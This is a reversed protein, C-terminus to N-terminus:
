NKKKFFRRGVLDVRVSVSKGWALSKRDQCGLAALPAEEEPSIVDLMIGTEAAVRAIFEAGNAARRCAETAVSRALTVRRHRLKDSCVALAAITRDIAAESIRGTSALGEGLRVIRSFVDIVTFGDGQVRAILLRWSNTGLALAAYHRHRSGHGRM